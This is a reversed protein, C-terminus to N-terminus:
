IKNNKDSKVKKPILHGEEKKQIQKVYNKKNDRLIGTAKFVNTVKM